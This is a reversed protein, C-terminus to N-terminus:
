ICFGACRGMGTVFAVPKRNCTSTITSGTAVSSTVMHGSQEAPHQQTSSARPALVDRVAPHLTCLCGPLPRRLEVVAEMLCITDQLYYTRLAAQYQLVGREYLPVAQMCVSSRATAAAACGSRSVRFHLEFFPYHSLLCYCRPAAIMCQRFPARCSSYNLRALGPPRHLMERVYWCCGYLPFNGGVQVDMTCCCCVPLLLLLLLCLHAAGGSCRQMVVDQLRCATLCQASCFLGTVVFGATLFTSSSLQLFQIQKLCLASTSTAKNLGSGIHKSRSVAVGTFSAAMTLWCCGKEQLMNCLNGSAELQAAETEQGQRGGPALPQKLHGEWCLSCVVGVRPPLMLQVIGQTGM